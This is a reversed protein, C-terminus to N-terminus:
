SVSPGCPRAIATPRDHGWVVLKGVLNDYFQSIEDGSEYGTDFRTGFGDPPTLTTIPGPSPPVCWRGPGRRQDAGRDRTRARHHRGPHVAPARRQGGPATARRPRHRHHARHGPARGPSPHEDRPLPVRRGRLPVRGDRRQRLRM